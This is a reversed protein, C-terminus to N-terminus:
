RPKARLTVPHEVPLADGSPPRVSITLTAKLKHRDALLRRAGRSLPVSLRLTRPAAFNASKQGLTKKGFALRADLLVPSRLEVNAVVGGGRSRQKVGTVVAPSEIGIFDTRTVTHHGRDDDGEWREHLELAAEDPPADAPLTVRWHQGDVREVNAVAIRQLSRNAVEAGLLEVPRSFTVEIVTRGTVPLEGNWTAPPQAGATIAATCGQTNCSLIEGEDASSFATAGNATASVHPPAQAAAGAPAALALAAATAAAIRATRRL